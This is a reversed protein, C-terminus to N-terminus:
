MSANFSETWKQRSCSPIDRRYRSKVRMGRGGPGAGPSATSSTAVRDLEAELRSSRVWTPAELVWSSNMVGLLFKVVFRRSTAELEKRRSLDPRPPKESAYRTQKKISHNRVGTLSHWPVFSWASHNHKLQRDDYAVRLQSAGAAVDVSILKEAVDYMEHFMHDADFWDASANQDYHDWEALNQAADAPFGLWRLLWPEAGRHGARGGVGDSARSHSASPPGPDTETLGTSRALDTPLNM